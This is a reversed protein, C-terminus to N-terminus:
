EAPTHHKEAELDDRRTILLGFVALSGLIV